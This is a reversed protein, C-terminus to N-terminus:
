KCQMKKASVPSQPAPIGLGGWDFGPRKAARILKEVRTRIKKLAPLHEAVTPGYLKKYHGDLEALRAEFDGILKAAVRTYRTSRRTTPAIRERVSAVVIKRIRARDTIGNIAAVIEQQVDADLAGVQAALTLTFDGRRLAAQIEPPTDAAHIYRQANRPSMGGVINCIRRALKQREFQGLKHGAALEAQRNLNKTISLPDLQRRNANFRLFEAEVTAADAEHLDHRILVIAHTHGLRRLAAARRHGDLICFQPLGARNEAPMVHIPDRQGTQLDADLQADEVASCQPNFLDQLPHPALKSLELQLREPKARVIPCVVASAVSLLEAPSVLQQGNATESLAEAAHLHRIENEM